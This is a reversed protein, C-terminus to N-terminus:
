LITARDIARNVLRDARRNSARPIATFSVKGGLALVLEQVRSALPKLRANKVRYAGKLQQVLLEADLYCKIVSGQKKLAIIRELATILSLYEAQNNTAQGIYESIEAVLESGQETKREIVAGIGAPGPNGRAGGDTHVLFCDGRDNVARAGSALAIM